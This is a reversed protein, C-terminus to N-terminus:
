YLLLLFNNYTIDAFYREYNRERKYYPSFDKISFPNFKVKFCIGAPIVWFRCSRTPIFNATQTMPVVLAIRRCPKTILAKVVSHKYHPCITISVTDAWLLIRGQFSHDICNLRPHYIKATNRSHIVLINNLKLIFDPNPRGACIMRPSVQQTGIDTTIKCKVFVPNHFNFVVSIM